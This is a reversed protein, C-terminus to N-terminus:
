RVEKLGVFFDKCSFYTILPNDPDALVQLLTGTPAGRQYVPLSMYRKEFWFHAESNDAGAFQEASEGSWDITIDGPKNLQSFIARSVWVCTQGTLQLNEGNKFFSVLKSSKELANKDMAISGKSENGMTWDFAILDKGFARVTVIFPYSNDGAVVEYTLVSGPKLILKKGTHQCDAPVGEASNGGLDMWRHYTTCQADTNGMDSYTQALLLYLDLWDPKYQLLKEMCAAAKTKEGAVYYGNAMDSLQTWDTTKETEYGNLIGLASETKGSYALYSAYRVDASQRDSPATALRRAKEFAATANAADNPDASYYMALELWGRWGGPNWKETIDKLISLAVSKGEVPFFQSYEALVELAGRYPDNTKKAIAKRLFQEGEALNNQHLLAIGKLAYGNFDEPYKTLIEEANSLVADIDSGYIANQAADVLTTLDNQAQARGSVLLLAIFLLKKM